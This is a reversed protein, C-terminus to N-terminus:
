SSSTEHLLGNEVLLTRDAIAATEDDHSVMVMTTKRQDRIDKLIDIVRRKTKNDLNSTVEDIVVIPTNGCVLLNMLKVMSKQGDSLNSGGRPGVSADLDKGAFVDSFQTWLEEVQKNKEEVEHEPAGYMINERVTRYLLGQDPNLWSVIQKLNSMQYQKVPKQGVIVEGSDPDILRQLTKTLTSKGSGSEGRIVVCEHPKIKISAGKLVRKDGYSHRIRKLEVSHDVPTTETGEEITKNAIEGIKDSVQSYKGISDVVNIQSKTLTQLRMRVGMLVSVLTLVEKAFTDKEEKSPNTQLKEKFLKMALFFVVFVGVYSVTQIIYGLNDISQLYWIKDVCVDDLRNSVDVVERDVMNRSTVLTMNFIVDFARWETEKSMNEQCKSLKMIKNKAGYAIGAVVLGVLLFVLAYRWNLKFLFIFMVLIVGINPIITYLLQQYVHSASSSTRLMMQRYVNADTSTETSAENKKLILKFMRAEAFAQFKPFLRNELVDTVYGLIFSILLIVMMIFLSRFGKDVNADAIDKQFTAALKSVMIINLVTTLVVLLLYTITLGM